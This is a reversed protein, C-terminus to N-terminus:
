YPELVQSVRKVDVTTVWPLFAAVAVVGAGVAALLRAPRRLTEIV